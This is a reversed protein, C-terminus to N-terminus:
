LATSAAPLLDSFRDPLLVHYGRATNGDSIRGVHPGSKSPTSQMMQKWAQAAIDDYAIPNSDKIEDFRSLRGTIHETMTSDNAILSREVIRQRALDRDFLALHFLLLGQGIDVPVNEARHFGSRWRLPKRVAVLKSFEHTLVANRRQQLVPRTLDLAPEAPGHIVDVGFAAVQADPGLGLLYDQLGIGMKPDVAVFEDVDTRLVAFAGRRLHRRAAHSQLNAAHNNRSNRDRPIDTVVQVNIDKLDTQPTWDDGDLMVHLNERGFLTGYYRVWMDLLVSEARVKTLVKITM